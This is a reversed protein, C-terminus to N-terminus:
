PLRLLPLPLPVFNFDNAQSWNGLTFKRVSIMEHRKGSKGPHLLIKSQCGSELDSFAVAELCHIGWSLQPLTAVTSLALHLESSYSGPWKSMYLQNLDLLCLQSVTLVKLSQDSTHIEWLFLFIRFFTSKRLHNFFLKFPFSSWMYSLFKSKQVTLQCHHGQQLNQRTKACCFM